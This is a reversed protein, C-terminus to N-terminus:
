FNIAFRRPGERPLYHPPLDPVGHLRAVHPFPASSIASEARKGPFRPPEAPKGSPKLGDLLARKADPEDLGILDIHVIPVLMGTLSCAAVRVPILKRKKGTPDQAFTAAWEPQTYESKLYTDSLVAITFDTQAAAEQMRLVFNEGPRFHWAQVIPEYGASEIAGAIWEAWDRDARNYSIFVKPTESTM